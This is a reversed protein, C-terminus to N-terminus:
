SRASGAWARRPGRRHSRPGCRRNSATAVREFTAVILGCHEVGGIAMAFVQFPLSVPLVSAFGVVGMFLELDHLAASADRIALDAAERAAAVAADREADDTM